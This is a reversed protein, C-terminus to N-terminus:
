KGFGSFFSQVSDPLHPLLADVSAKAVSKKPGAVAGKGSGQAGKSKKVEGRVETPKPANVIRVKVKRLEVFDLQFTRGTGTGADGKVAIHALHMNSYVKSPIVVNVLQVEDRLKELEELTDSVADFATDWQLVQMAYEEKKGLLAGIGDKLANGGASFIAGPTPALPARYHAVKIPIKAVKGGRSNIDYIPENSVFVELTVHDLEKKVHDAVNADEEVPHETATSVLEQSEETCVDFYLTKDQGAKTTWWLFAGGM